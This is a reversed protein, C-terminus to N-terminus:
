AEEEAIRRKERAKANQRIRKKKTGGKERCGKGDEEWCEKGDEEGAENGSKENIYKRDKPQEEAVTSDAESERQVHEGNSEPTKRGTFSKGWGKLVIVGDEVSEIAEGMGGARESTYQASAVPTGILILGISCTPATAVSTVLVSPPSLAMNTLANQLAEAVEVAQNLNGEWM